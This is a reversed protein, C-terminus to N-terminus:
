THCLSIFNRRRCNWNRHRCMLPLIVFRLDDKRRRLLKYHVPGFLIFPCSFTIAQGCLNYTLLFTSSTGALTLPRTATLAAWDSRSGSMRKHSVGRRWPVIVAKPPWRLHTVTHGHMAHRGILRSRTRATGQIIQSDLCQSDTLWKTAANFATGPDCIILSLFLSPSGGFARLPWLTVQIPDLRQSEEGDNRERREEKIEERLIPGADDSIIFFYDM